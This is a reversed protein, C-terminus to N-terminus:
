LQCSPLRPLNLYKCVNVQAGENAVICSDENQMSIDAKTATRYTM